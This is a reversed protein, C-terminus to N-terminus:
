SVGGIVCLLYGAPQVTPLPPELRGAVSSGQPLCHGSMKAMVFSSEQVAGIIQVAVFVWSVLDKDLVDLCDVGEILLTWGVLHCVQLLGPALKMLTRPGSAAVM